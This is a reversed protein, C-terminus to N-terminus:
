VKCLNGILRRLQLKRPVRTVPGGGAPRGAPEQAVPEVDVPARIGIRAEGSRLSNPQMESATTDLIARNWRESPPRRRVTRCRVLGTKTLILSECSGDALGVYFGDEFRAGLPPLQTATTQLPMWWVSEGFEAVAPRPRRGTNREGPTRGDAGVAYMRYIAAAQRVLLTMLGHEAPIKEGLQYELADKLTRVYGKLLQVGVEAAGNTQPDGAAAKEPVVEGTWHKRLERLFAVISAETDNRFVVRKYGLRDLDAGWLKLVREFGEYDVGKAPVLRAHLGKGKSDWMVLVPSESITGSGSAAGPASHAGPGDEAATSEEAGPSAAQGGVQKKSHLYCYDWSLIPLAGEPRSTSSHAAERGRGRVCHRCWSRFVAHGALQHAEVESATPDEPTPARRAERAETPEALTRADAAEAPMDIPRGGLAQALEASASASPTEVEGPITDFNSLQYPTPRVPLGPVTCPIFENGAQPSCSGVVKRAPQFGAESEM